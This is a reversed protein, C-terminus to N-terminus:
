FKSETTSQPSLLQNHVIHNTVAVIPRTDQETLAERQLLIIEMAQKAYACLGSFAVVSRVTVDQVDLFTGEATSVKVV